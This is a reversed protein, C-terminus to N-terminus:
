NIRLSLSDVLWALRVAPLNVTSNQTGTGLNDECQVGDETVERKVKVVM